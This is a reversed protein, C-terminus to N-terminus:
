PNGRISKKILVIQGLHYYLHEILGALNYYFTKYKPDVFESWLKDEAMNEILTALKEGERWSNDLFEDWATQSLFAPTEWSAKDNGDLLGGELVQTLLRVYYFLHYALQAITNFDNVKKHIEALTLDSLQEKLNTSSWNYGDYIYRIRNALESTISM